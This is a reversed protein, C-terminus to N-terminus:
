LATQLQEMAANGLTAFPKPEWLTNEAGTDIDDM